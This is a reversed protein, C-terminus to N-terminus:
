RAGVRAQSDCNWPDGHFRTPPPAKHTRTCTLAGCPRSPGLMATWGSAFLRSAAPRHMSRMSFGLWERDNLALNVHGADRM